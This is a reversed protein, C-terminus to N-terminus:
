KHELDQLSELEKLQMTTKCRNKERLCLLKPGMVASMIKPYKSLRHMIWDEPLHEKNQAAHFCKLEGTQIAFHNKHSKLVSLVFHNEKCRNEYLEGDIIMTRRCARKSAAYKLCGNKMELAICFNTRKMYKEFPVKSCTQLLAHQVQKINNM